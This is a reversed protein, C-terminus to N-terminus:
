ATTSPFESLTDRGKWPAAVDISPRTAVFMSGVSAGESPRAGQPSRFVVAGPPRAGGKTRDELITWITAKLDFESWRAKRVEGSRSATLTLLKLALKTSPLANSADVRRLAAAVEGHPLGRQHRVRISNKPLAASIADGAPNDERYGQAVAWKMVASIRQRVRQATVREPELLRRRAVRGDRRGHHDRQGAQSRAAAVRPEAAHGVM